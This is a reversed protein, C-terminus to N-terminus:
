SAAEGIEKMAEDLNVIFQQCRHQFSGIECGAGIPGAYKSIFDKTQNLLNVLKDNKAQEAIIGIYEDSSIVISAAFLRDYHVKYEKLQVIETQAAELASYEVIQMVKDSCFKKHANWGADFGDRAWVKEIREEQDFCKVNPYYKNKADMRADNENEM